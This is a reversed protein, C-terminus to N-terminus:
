CARPARDGCPRADADEEADPRNGYGDEFDLRLDEVPQTALKARVREYVAADLGAGLGTVDAVVTRRARARRAIGPRPQGVAPCDRCRCGVGSVYVTHVPQRTGPDGPYQDALARDAGALSKDLETLFDDTLVSVVASSASGM